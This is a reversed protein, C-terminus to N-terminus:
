TDSVIPASGMEEWKGKINAIGPSQHHPTHFTVMIQLKFNVGVCLVNDKLIM